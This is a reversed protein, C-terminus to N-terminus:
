LWVRYSSWTAISIRSSVLYMKQSVFVLVVPRSKQHMFTNQPTWFWTYFKRRLSKEHLTFNQIQGFFAKKFLKFHVLPAIQCTIMLKPSFICWFQSKPSLFLLWTNFYVEYNIELGFVTKLLPKRINIDQKRAHRVAWKIWIRYFM